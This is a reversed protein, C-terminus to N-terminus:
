AITLTTSFNSPLLESDGAWSIKCTYVGAPNNSLLFALRGNTESKVTYIKNAVELNVEKNPIPVLTGDKKYLYLFAYLRPTGTPTSKVPYGIIASRQAASSTTPTTIVTDKPPTITEDVPPDVISAPQPAAFKKAWIVWSNKLPGTIEGIVWVDGNSATACTNFDGWRNRNTSDLWVLGSEGARTLIPLGDSGLTFLSPYMKSSSGNFAVILSGASNTTVAPLYYHVKDASSDYVRQEKLLTRVGLDITYITVGSRDVTSSSGSANMGAHRVCTLRGGKIVSAQMRHDNPDIPLSGRADIPPLYGIPQPTLVALAGLEPTGNTWVIERLSITLRGMDSSVFFTRGRNGDYNIAPIPSGQLLHSEVFKSVVQFDPSCVIYRASQWGGAFNAAYVGVGFAYGNPDFGFTLFDFVKGAEGVELFVSTWGKTPDETYAVSIGNSSLRPNGRELAAAVYRKRYIDYVIRVDYAGNRPYVGLKFIDGLKITGLYEGALSFISVGVMSIQVVHSPGVAAAANPPTSRAGLTSEMGVSSMLSFGGKEIVRPIPNIITPRLEQIGVM